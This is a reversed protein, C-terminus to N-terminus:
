KKWHLIPSNRFQGCTQIIRKDCNFAIIDTTRSVAFENAQHLVVACCHLLDGLWLLLLMSLLM